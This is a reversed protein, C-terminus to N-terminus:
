VGDQSVIYELYQNLATENVQNSYLERGDTYKIVFRYGEAGASFIKADAENNMRSIDTSREVLKMRYDENGDKDSDIVFENGEFHYNMERKFLWKNSNRDYESVRVVDPNSARNFEIITDNLAYRKGQPFESKDLATESDYISSISASDSIYICNSLIEYHGLTDYIKLQFCQQGTFGSKVKVTAEGKIPNPDVIEVNGSLVEMGYRISADPILYDDRDVKYFISESRHEDDIDLDNFLYKLVNDETHVIDSEGSEKVTIKKILKPINSNSTTPISKVELELSPREMSGDNVYALTSGDKAIWENSMLENYFKSFAQNYSGSVYEKQRSHSYYYEDDYVFDHGMTHTLDLATSASYLASLDIDYIVTVGNEEREDRYLKTGNLSAKLSTLEKKADVISEQKDEDEEKEDVSNLTDLAKLFLAKSNALRKAGVSSNLAGFDSRKFIPLPNSSINTYEASVGNLVTTRTKVDDFTAYDFATLYELKSAVSLISVRLLKSQNNTINFDKYNFIYSPDVFNKALIDEIATLKEVIDHIVNMSTGSLDTINSLLEAELDKDDNNDILIELHSNRAISKGDLEIEILDGVAESNSIEALAFLAKGVQADNDKANAGNLIAQSQNLKEQIDDNEIEMTDLIDIASHLVSKSKTFPPFDAGTFPNKEVGNKVVFETITMGKPLAILLSTQLAKEINKGGDSLSVFFTNFSIKAPDLNKLTLIFDRIANAKKRIFDKKDEPFSAILKDIDFDKITETASTNMVGSLDLAKIDLDAKMATKLVEMLIILKEIKVKEIGTNSILRSPAIVPDFNQIMREFKEINEGSKKHLLTTLPTIFTDNASGIMDFELAKDEIDLKNNNNSDIIAGSFVTLNCDIDLPLNEFDVQGKEKVSLLSEYKKGDACTAVVPTSLKVIYGDAVKKSKALAKAEEETLEVEKTANNLVIDICTTNNECAELEEPLEKTVNLEKLGKAIEELNIALATETSLNEDKLLQQNNMLGALLVFDLKERNDLNKLKKVEEEKLFDADVVAQLVSLEHTVPKYKLALNVNKYDAHKQGNIEMIISMTPNYDELIHINKEDFQVQVEKWMKALTAGKSVSAKAQLEGEDCSGNDNKDQCINVVIEPPIGVLKLNHTLLKKGEESSSGCGTFNLTLIIFMLSIIKKM